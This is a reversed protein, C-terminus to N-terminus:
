RISHRNKPSLSPPSTWRFLAQVPWYERKRTMYNKNTSLNCENWGSINWVFRLYIQTFGFLKWTKNFILNQNHGPLFDWLTAQLVEFVPHILLQKTISLSLFALLIQPKSFGQQIFSWFSHKLIWGPNIYLHELGFLVYEVVSCGDPCQICRFTSLFHHPAVRKQSRTWIGEPVPCTELHHQKKKGLHPVNTKWTGLLWNAPYGAHVM